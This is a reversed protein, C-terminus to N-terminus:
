GADGRVVGSFWKVFQVPAPDALGLEKRLAAEDVAYNQEAIMLKIIDGPLLRLISFVLLMIVMLTPIALLLRRAVYATM